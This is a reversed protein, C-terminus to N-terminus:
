KAAPSHRGARITLERLWAWDEARPEGPQLRWQWNGETTAPRNMRAGSGLGLLDQVPIIAVPAETHFACDILDHSITGTEPLKGLISTIREREELSAEEEFWGRVTNNDHTGTYLVVDERIAEPAHPNNPDRNFGFQLVRMGPIGFATMLNRVDPTITGLDEAVFPLSPFRAALCSLLAYGPVPVWHGEGATGASAPIEWCASLGRFHDIRICDVMSLLHGVRQVWWSFGQSEMEEWRYVPNGWWQGTTSFYDPPVGAVALPRGGEDLRFLEKHSWVDASEYAPYLPLDGIISVCHNRAFAHLADWQSFALYQIYQEEEISTALKRREEEITDPERDRLPDPWDSWTTTGRSGSIASFLAYDDLWCRNAWWFHDFGPDGRGCRNQQATTRLFEMKLPAEELFGSGSRDKSLLGMLQSQDAKGDSVMIEPSILLPNFAFLSTAHYPSYQHSKDAPHLPLVQWYRQRAESLGAVFRIAEPGLDGIGFRSPLSTIHLLMGASRSGTEFCPIPSGEESGIRSAALQM